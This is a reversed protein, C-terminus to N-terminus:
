NRDGDSITYIEKHKKIAVPIAKQIKNVAIDRAGVVVGPLYYVDKSYTNM